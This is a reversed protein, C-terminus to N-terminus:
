TATSPGEIQCFMVWVQGRDRWAASPRSHRQPARTNPPRQKRGQKLRLRLSLRLIVRRRCVTHTAMEHMPDIDHQFLSPSFLQTCPLPHSQGVGAAGSRCVQVRPRRCGQATSLVFRTHKLCNEWSIRMRLQDVLGRSPRLHGGHGHRQVHGFLRHSCCGCGCRCTSPGAPTCAHACTALSTSADAARTRRPRRRPSITRPSLAFVVTKESTLFALQRLLTSVAMSQVSRRWTELHGVSRHGVNGRVQHCSSPTSGGGFGAPIADGM